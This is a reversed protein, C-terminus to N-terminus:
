TGCVQTAVLQDPSMVCKGTERQTVQKHNPLGGSSHTIRHPRVPQEATIRQQPNRHIADVALASTAGKASNPAATFAARPGHTDGPSEPSAM